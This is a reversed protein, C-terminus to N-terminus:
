TNHVSIHVIIPGKCSQLRRVELQDSRVTAELNVLMYVEVVRFRACRMQSPARSLPSFHELQDGTNVTEVNRMPKRLRQNDWSYTM